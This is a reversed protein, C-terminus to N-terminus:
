TKGDFLIIGSNYAKFNVYAWNSVQGDLTLIRNTDEKTYDEPLSYHHIQLEGNVVKETVIGLERQSDEIDAFSYSVSLPSTGLMTLIVIVTLTRNQSRVM